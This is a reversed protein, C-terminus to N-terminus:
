AVIELDVNKFGASGSDGVHEPCLPFDGNVEISSAAGHTEPTVREVVPLFPPFNYLRFCLAAIWCVVCM